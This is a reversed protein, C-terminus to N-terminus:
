VGVLDVALVTGRVKDQETKNQLKQQLVSSPLGRGSKCTVGHRRVKKPHNYPDRCFKAFMYLNDVSCEHYEDTVKDFLYIVRAHLHFLGM